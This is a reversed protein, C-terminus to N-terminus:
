WNRTRRFNYAFFMMAQGYFQNSGGFIRRSTRAWMKIPNMSSIWESGDASFLGGPALINSLDYHGMTTTEVRRSLENIADYADGRVTMRPTGCVAKFFTCWLPGSGIEMGGMEPDTIPARGLETAPGYVLYPAARTPDAQLPLQILTNLKLGDTINTQLETLYIQQLALLIQTEIDNAAFNAM